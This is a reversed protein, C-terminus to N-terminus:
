DSRFRAGTHHHHHHPVDPNRLEGVAIGPRAIKTTSPVKIKGARANDAILKWSAVREGWKITVGGSESYQDPKQGHQAILAEALQALAEAYGFATLKANIVEDQLLPNEVLTSIEESHFDGLALRVHDKLTSLTPDFIAPM